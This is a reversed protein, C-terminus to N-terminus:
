YGNRNIQNIVIKLTHILLYRFNIILNCYIALKKNYLISKLVQLRYYCCNDNVSSIILRVASFILIDIKVM